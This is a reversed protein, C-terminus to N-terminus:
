DMEKSIGVYKRLLAEDTWRRATLSRARRRAPETINCWHGQPPITLKLPKNPLMSCFAGSM